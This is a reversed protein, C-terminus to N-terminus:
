RRKGTVVFDADARGPVASFGRQRRRPKERGDYYLRGTQFVGHHDDGVQFAPNTNFGDPHIMARGLYMFNLFAQQMRDTLVPFNSKYTKDAYVVRGEFTDRFENIQTGPTPDRRAWFLEIFDHAEDDTKVNKWARWDDRTMLWQEPGKAWDAYKPSLAAFASASLALLAFAVVSRLSTMTM